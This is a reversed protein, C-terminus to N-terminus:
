GDRLYHEFTGPGDITALIEATVVQRQNGGDPDAVTYAANDLWGLRAIPGPDAAAPGAALLGALLSAAVAAAVRAPRGLAPAPLRHHM